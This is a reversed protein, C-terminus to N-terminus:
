KKINKKEKEKWKANLIWKTIGQDTLPWWYKTETCEKWKNKIYKSAIHKIKYMKKIFSKM